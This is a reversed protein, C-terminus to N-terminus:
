NYKQLLEVVDTLYAVEKGIFFTIHGYNYTNFAVLNQGLQEKLWYNDEPDGLLDTTGVFLAIPVGSIKSLDIEPVEEQGYIEVNKKGYDFYQFRKSRYIQLLHELSKVSVGSPYHGYYTRMSNLDDVSVDGDSIISTSYQCIQPVVGCIDRFWLKTWFNQYFFEHIGFLKILSISLSNSGLNKLLSTKIFDLKSVPGLAILLNVKEQYWASNESLATWYTATAESHAIVSLKSKGTVKLIHDINARDDAQREVFSFDWFDM